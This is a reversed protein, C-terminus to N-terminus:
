VRGREDLLSLPGTFPSHQTFLASGFLFLGLLLHPLFVNHYFGYLFPAVILLFGTLMDLTLHVQMPVVKILGMEHRTFITMLTLLTGFVVPIFLAAGGVDRFGFLWPSATIVIGALYDAVGHMKTSIFQNM